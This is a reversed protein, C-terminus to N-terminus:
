VYVYRRRTNCLLRFVRVPCFILGKVRFTSLSYGVVELIYFEREAGIRAIEIFIESIQIRRKRSGVIVNGLEYRSALSCNFAASTRDYHKHGLRVSKVNKHTGFSGFIVSHVGILVSELSVKCYFAANSVVELFRIDGQNFASVNRLSSVRYYLTINGFVSRIVLVYLM